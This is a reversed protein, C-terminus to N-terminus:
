NLRCPHQSQRQLARQQVHQYQNKGKFQKLYKESSYKQFRITLQIDIQGSTSTQHATEEVNSQWLMVTLTAMTVITFPLLSLPVRQIETTFYFQKEDYHTKM